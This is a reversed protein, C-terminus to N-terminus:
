PKHLRKRLFLAAVIGVTFLVSLAANLGATTCLGYVLWAVLAVMYWSYVVARKSGAPALGLVLTMVIDVVLFGVYALIILGMALAQVSLALAGAFLM